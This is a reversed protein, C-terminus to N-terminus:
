IRRFVLPDPSIKVGCPIGTFDSQGKDSRHPLGLAGAARATCTSTETRLNNPDHKDRPSGRGVIGASRLGPWSRNQRKGIVKDWYYQEALHARCELVDSTVILNEAGEAIPRAKM